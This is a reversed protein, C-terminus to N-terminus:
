DAEIVDAAADLIDDVAKLDNIAALVADASATLAIAQARLDAEVAELDTVVSMTGEEFQFAGMDVRGEGTGIAPSNAQLHYDGNASDVFLPDVDWLHNPPQPTPQFDITFLPSPQGDERWAMNYDVVTGTIDGTLVVTHYGYNLLINNVVKSQPCNEFGVAGPYPTFGVNNEFTNGDVIIGSCGGGGTNIGGYARIINDHILIDIAGELMWGHIGLGAPDDLMDITNKEFVCDVGPGLESENWTQFADIHPDINEPQDFSIDHIYNGRFIHGSGFFRMGDADLWGPDDTRKPHYQITEWVENGEVLHDQGAVSGGQQGNRWLRNNRVICDSIPQGNPHWMQLGGGVCFHIYNDELIIRSGQVHVGPGDSWSLDTDTIEFGRVEIDSQQLRFGKCVAGGLSEFTKPSGPAGGQSSLDFITREYNGPYVLCPDGPIMTDAAKQITAFPSIDTGPNTDTGNIADVYYATM